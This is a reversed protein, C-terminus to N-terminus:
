ASSRPRLNAPATSRPAGLSSSRTVRSFHTRRYICSALVIAIVCSAPEPVPRQSATVPGPDGFDGAWIALDDGDVTGDGNGDAGSGAPSAPGGFGRQWTLFDRGDVDGDDDYDGPAGAPLFDSLVVDSQEFPSNPGYNVVFSGSGDVTNLRAGNAANAFSGSLSNAALITYTTSEDPLVAANINELVLNGNLSAFTSATLVDRRLALPLAHNFQVEFASTTNMSLNGITLSGIPFGTSASPSIRAGNQMSVPGSIAGDGTLLAGTQITVTGTGTGSGATNDVILTGAVKTGGQYTSAGTLRLTGDGTKDLFDGPFAGAIPGDVELEVPAPSDNAFFISQTQNLTILGAQIRSTETSNGSRLVAAQLRLEGAGMDIEAAGQVGLQGTVTLRGGTSQVRSEAGLLLQALTEDHGDLDALSSGSLIVQSNPLDSVQNDADWRVTADIIQLSGAISGNSSSKSLVLTGENVGVTASLTNAASGDFTIPQPAELVLLNSGTIAGNVRMPGSAARWVANTGSVALSNNFTVTGTGNHTIDNLTLPDENLSYNGSGEFTLSDINWPMDVDQNDRPTNPIVVDATGDDAPIAGDQWNLPNSWDDAFNPISPSAGTWTFTAAAAYQYSSALAVFCLVVLHIPSLGARKLDFSM